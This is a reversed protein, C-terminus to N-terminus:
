STSLTSQEAWQGPHQELWRAVAQTDLYVYDAVIRGWRMRVYQMGENRYDTGIRDAFRIGVRMNWPPGSVVVDLLEFEPRLRAFRGFWDAISDPDQCDAAIAHDGSFVFRADSAFAKLAPGADGSGLAAYARRVQWCVVKDIM